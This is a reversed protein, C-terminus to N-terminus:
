LFSIVNNIRSAINEIDYAKVKEFGNKAITQAIDRNNLLFEIKEALEITNGPKFILGNVDPEVIERPGLLDSIIVPKSHAFAELIVIGFSEYRSPMCFIDISNYFKEKDDIWGLLEIDNQLNLDKILTKINHYEVGDGAIIAKFEIKKQKLLNLSEVFIDIGKIRDFRGMTGIVPIKQFQPLSFKLINPIKIMNPIHSIRDKKYGNNIIAQMINDSVSIIYNSNKIHDFGYGHAVGIRKTLNAAKKMMYHARNGHTIILDPNENKIINRLRFLAVPDYKSFNGVKYFQDNIPLIIKSKAHIISTVDHSYLKLAKNYDLFAQELGGERTTFTVNLIKM